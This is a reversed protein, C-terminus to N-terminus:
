GVVRVTSNAPMAPLPAGQMLAPLLAMLDTLHPNDEDRFVRHGCEPLFVGTRPAGSFAEFLASTKSSDAIPDKEPIVWATPKRLAIIAQACREIDKLLTAGEGDYLTRMMAPMLPSPSLFPAVFMLRDVVALAGANRAAMQGLHWIGFSSARLVIKPPTAGFSNTAGLYAAVTVGDLLATTPERDSFGGVASDFSALHPPSSRLRRSTFHPSFTRRHIATIMSANEAM